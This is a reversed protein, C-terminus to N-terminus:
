IVDSWIVGEIGGLFIYFICFGGVVCVILILNINLVLIIVIILLYIVIAVWSIYYFVFLLSSIVWMVLSFWEELYEYVIMVKLKCFFLIYFKVLILIIILILFSGIVYVWDSM